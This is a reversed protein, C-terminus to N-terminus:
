ENKCVVIFVTTFIDNLTRIKMRKVSILDVAGVSKAPATSKIKSTFM